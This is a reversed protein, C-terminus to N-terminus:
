HWISFDLIVQHLLADPEFQDQEVLLLHTIASAALAAKVAEALTVVGAYTTDFCDVQLRVNDIPAGDALTNEPASSIRAYVVYPKQVNSPAINPFVRGGAVAALATFLDQQIM